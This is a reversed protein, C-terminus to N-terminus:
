GAAIILLWSRVRGAMGGGVCRIWRSCVCRVMTAHSHLQLVHQGTARLTGRDKANM